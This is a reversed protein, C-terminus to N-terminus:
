GNYDEPDGDLTGVEKCRRFIDILLTGPVADAPALRYMELYRANCYVLRANADFVCLGQSMHGLASTLQQNQTTSPGPARRHAAAWIVGLTALVCLLLLAIADFPTLQPM